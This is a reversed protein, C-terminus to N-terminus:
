DRRRGRAFMLGMLALALADLGGGVRGGGARGVSCGSDRAYGQGQPAGAIGPNIAVGTPAADGTAISGGANTDGLASAAADAHAQAADPTQVPDDPGADLGFGADGPAGAETGIGSDRAAGADPAGGADAGAEAGADGGSATASACSEIDFANIRVEVQRKVGAGDGQPSATGYGVVWATSGPMVLAVECGVLPPTVSLKAIRPDEPLVCYAWDKATNVGREGSAGAVCRAMVSFSGVAGRSGFGITASAGAICHAATTVVRPHIPTNKVQQARLM